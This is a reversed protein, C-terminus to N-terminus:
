RSSAYNSRKVKLESVARCINTKSFFIKLIKLKFIFAFLISTTFSLFWSDYWKQKSIQWETKM